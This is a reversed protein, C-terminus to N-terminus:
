AKHVYDFPQKRLEDLNEKAWAICADLGQDLSVSDRWGLETRLKSSDLLYAADKGLREGV